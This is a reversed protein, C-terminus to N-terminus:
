RTTGTTDSGTHHTQDCNASTVNQDVIRQMRRNKSMIDECLRRLETLILESGVLLRSRTESTDNGDFHSVGGTNIRGSSTSDDGVTSLGGGSSSSSSSSKNNYANFSEAGEITSNLTGMNSESTEWGRCSVWEQFSQQMNQKFFEVFEEKSRQRHIRYKQLHSKIHETNLDPFEPMLPMLVKPSSHKLGLEFIVAAFEAELASPFSLEFLAPDIQTSEACEIEADDPSPRTRKRPQLEQKSCSDSSM